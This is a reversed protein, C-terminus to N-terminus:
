TKGINECLKMGPPDVKTTSKKFIDKSTTGVTQGWVEASAGVQGVLSLDFRACPTIASMGSYSSASTGIM